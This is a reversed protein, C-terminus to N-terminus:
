YEPLGFSETKSIGMTRPSLDETVQVGKDSLHIFCTELSYPALIVPSSMMKCPSLEDEIYLIKFKSRHLNLTAIFRPRQMILYSLYECSNIYDRWLKIDGTDNLDGWFIVMIRCNRNKLPPINNKDAKILLIDDSISKNDYQCSLYPRKSIIDCRLLKIFLPYFLRRVQYEIEDPWDTYSTLVQEFILFDTSEINTFCWKCVLKLRIIDLITLECLIRQFLDIYLVSFAGLNLKDSGTIIKTPLSTLRREKRSRVVSSAQEISHSRNM